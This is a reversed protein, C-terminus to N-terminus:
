DAAHPLEEVPEGHRWIVLSNLLWNWSFGLLVGIGNAIYPALDGLVSENGFADRLAPTLLSITAVVIVPSMISSLNFKAFRTLINGDRPRHRFTWRHHLNFQAIIAIEVALCSAILLRVDKHTALWLDAHTHKDPLFGAVPSDYFVFLFFTNIVFGIAGVILFKVLTTPLHLRYALSRVAEVFGEEREPTTQRAVETQM